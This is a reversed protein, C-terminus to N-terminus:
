FVWLKIECNQNSVLELHYETPVASDKVTVAVTASTLMIVIYGNPLRGLGHEIKLPTSATLAIPTGDSDSVAPRDVIRGHVIPSVLVGRIDRLTEDSPRDQDISVPPLRVSEM